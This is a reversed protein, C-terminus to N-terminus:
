KKIVKLYSTGKPSVMKLQYMGAPYNGLNLESQKTGKAINQVYILRGTMDMVQLTATENLGNIQLNVFDSTPNPYANLSLGAEKGTFEVKVIKSYEFKGDFDTQKLRYYSIGNLPKEDILNYSQAITTTGAGKVNGIATFELGNVSREVTFFDNNKEMATQWTLAVTNEEKKANFAVLEVPLPSSALGIRFSNSLDTLAIGTRTISPNNTTGSVSGHTGVTSGALALHLKSIDTTSLVNAANVRLNYTGGAMGNGPVVRWYANSYNTIVDSGDNFELSTAGSTADHTVEITGGTTPAASTSIYIPRFDQASGMPYMGEAAQDAISNTTFWRSFTGDYMNGAVYTLTGPNTTSTGLTLLNNDLNIKGKTMILESSVTAKNTVLLTGSNKSVNLKPIAGLGTQGSGVITQDTLGAMTITTTGGTAAGTNLMYFDKNLKIEGGTLSIDAGAGNVILDGNLTLETGSTLTYTNTSTTNSPEITLSYLTHSGSFETGGDYILLTSTGPIVTGKVYTWDADNALAIRNLLTLNGAAKDIKINPLKGWGSVPRGTLKQNGSGNLVLTATGGGNFGTNTNLVDGAVSVTGTNLTIDASGELTLNGDVMLNTGSTVTFTTGSLSPSFTVNGLHHSGSINLNNSSFTLTNNNTTFDINGTTYTWDGGVNLTAPLILNGSIKAITVSPLIGASGTTTRSITQDSTGNFILSTTGGTGNLNTNTINVNGELNITGGSFTTAGTGAFNFNNTVKLNSGINFTTTTAPSFELNNFTTTGTGSITYPSVGNTFVVTSTGPNITNADNTFTNAFTIFNSLSLTGTTNFSVKPLKCLNSATGGTISQNDGTFNIQATGGGGTGTNPCNLNGYLNIIGTNLTINRNGELTLNGEVDVATSIEIIRNVSNAAIRFNNFILSGNITKDDEDLLITGSNHDFTGGSRTITTGILTLLGSTSIFKGATVTIGNYVAIPDSGGQFTGSKITFTLINVPANQIVKKLFFTQLRIETVFIEEDITCDTKSSQDFIAVDDVSPVGAGGTGNSSSAWNAANSWVLDSTQSGIPGVWYYNAAFTPLASILFGLLIFFPRLNAQM